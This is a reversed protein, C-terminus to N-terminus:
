LWYGVTVGFEDKGAFFDIQIPRVMVGVGGFFLDKHDFDKIIDLPDEPAHAYGFRLNVLNFLRADLGTRVIYKTPAANTFVNTIELDLPIQFLLADGALPINILSGITATCYRWGIWGKSKGTIRGANELLINDYIENVNGEHNAWVYGNLNTLVIAFDLWSIIHPQYFGVDFLVSQSKNDVRSFSEVGNDFIRRYDQQWKSNEYRINVGFEVAGQDDIQDFMLGALNFVAEHTRVNEGGLYRYYAGLAGLGDSYVMGLPVAANDFREDRGYGAALVGKPPLASTLAPNILGQFGGQPMATGAGALSQSTVSAPASRAFIGYYDRTYGQAAAPVSLAAIAACCVFAFAAARSCLRHITKPANDM